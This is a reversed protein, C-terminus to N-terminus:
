KILERKGKENVMTLQGGTMDAITQLDKKAKPHMLAVCNIVVGMKKAKEGIEKAWKASGSASGDTMFYITQPAPDMDLAMHLPHHWITGWFLPTDRVIKQLRKVERDDITRWPVKQKPGDPEWNHAGGKSKWKFKKGGKATVVADKRGKGMKIEDGAVWAPGGFFVMGIQLGNKMMQLSECLEDRMIKHRNQSKMSSSFDIVYAVRESRSTQGFFSSGGGQGFGSGDGWGQGFDEGIGMDLSVEEVQIEPVPIATPSTTQSVIMKSASMSPASPKREVNTQVKPKVVKQEVESTGSYAVLTPKTKYDTVMLIIALILGVMVMMLIAVVLSVLTATRQQQRLISRASRQPAAPVPIPELPGPQQEYQPTPPAPPPPPTQSM